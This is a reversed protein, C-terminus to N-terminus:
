RDRPDRTKPDVESAAARLEDSARGDRRVPPLSGSESSSFRRAWAVADRAIWIRAESEHEFAITPGARGDAWKAEVLWAGGAVRIAFSPVDEDVVGRTM